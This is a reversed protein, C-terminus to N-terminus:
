WAMVWWPKKREWEAKAFRMTELEFEVSIHDYRWQRWVEYESDWRVEQVIEPPDFISFVPATALVVGLPRGARDVAVIPM